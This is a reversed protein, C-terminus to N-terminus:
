PNTPSFGLSNEFSSLGNGIATSTANSAGTQINSAIWAQINQWNLLVLLAAVALVTLLLFKM